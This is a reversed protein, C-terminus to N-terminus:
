RPVAMPTGSVPDPVVVADVGLVAQVFSTDVVAAPPGAAHVQGDRMGVLHDAYRAAQNLDHLVMVVTRGADRNLARLLHLVELQHGLDLFTTPEDLLLIPTDQALALAIWARQRQGGSLTDLPRDALAAVDTAAMAWAVRETDHRSPRLGVGRHPFRGRLVLEGVAVGEPPLPSQPLFGLTRALEKRGYSAAPRGQVLVEGAAPELLRAMTRLLTSKGCANAGVIATIAGAPLALDLASLVSRDGYKAHLGRVELAASPAADRATAAPAPSHSM